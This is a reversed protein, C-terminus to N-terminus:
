KSQEHVLSNLSGRTSILIIGGIGALLLVTWQGGIVIPSWKPDLFLLSKWGDSLNVKNQSIDIQKGDIFYYFSGTKSFEFLGVSWRRMTTHLAIISIGVIITSLAKFSRQALHKNSELGIFILFVVVIPLFYRPHISDFIALNWILHSYNLLFLIIGSLGIIILRMLTSSYQISKIILFLIFFNFIILFPKALYSSAYSGSTSSLIESLFRPSSRLNHIILDLSNPTVEASFKPLQFKQLSKFQWLITLPAGIVIAISLYKLFGPMVTRQKILLLAGTFILFLFGLYKTDPRGSLAIFFSFSSLVMNSRNIGVRAISLLSCALGYLAIISWSTPNVSAVFFAVNPMLLIWLNVNYKYERRLLYSSFAAVIIMLLSNFLRMLSVSLEINELFFLAMTQYFIPSYTGPFPRAVRILGPDTKELDCKNIIQFNPVGWCNPSYPLLRPIQVFDSSQPCLGDGTYCYTRELHSIEDASSGVPSAFSWAALILFLAIFPSLSKVSTLNM